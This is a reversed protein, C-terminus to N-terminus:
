FTFHFDEIYDCSRTNFSQIKVILIIRLKGFAVLESDYFTRQFSRFAIDNADFFIM